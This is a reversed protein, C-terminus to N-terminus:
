YYINQIQYYYFYEIFLYFARTIYIKHYYIYLIYKIKIKM